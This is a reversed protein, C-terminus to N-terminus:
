PLVILQYFKMPGLGGQAGDDFFNFPSNTASVFTSYAIVNPFTQWTIVPMLNTTWQVEFLYNTPASWTLWFGNTIGINTSTISSIFV